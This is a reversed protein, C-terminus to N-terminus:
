NKRDNLYGICLHLFHGNCEYKFEKRIQEALECEVEFWLANGNTEASGVVKFNAQVGNYCVLSSLDFGERIITIHEGCSPRQLKITKYTYYEYLKRLYKGLEHGVEIFLSNSLKIQGFSIINM